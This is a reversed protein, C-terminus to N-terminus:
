RSIAPVWLTSFGGTQSADAYPVFVLSQQGNDATKIETAYALTGVWGKPLKDQADTLKINDQLPYVFKTKDLQLQPNLSQDLAFIQPGRKLTFSNPYTKGGNIIETEIDFSVVIKDKDKWQREIKLFHDPGSKYSKGNVTATYNKAWEPVRLQLPFQASGPIHVQVTATGKRPFESTLTLELPITKQSSTKINEKIQAPEYLLLTPINNLMGFNLYPILAIGRPVSSLCCTINCRYPKEGILPTYYSVCGTQPNEAGLLHNYITKEIENYYKLDGTISFLQTNFQLWTTTVCGEGMHASTDALLYHNDQFREHDSSTGTAFLRNASIDDFTYNIVQLLQSDGTLRYMKVLGVINSLMEYAKANAVKDVRKHKLISNVIAPGGEFDYARIIYRCFELYKKDGTWRYLDLMPDIVSTAAMGVHSGSKLINKKGPTDGFTSCLLDGIQVAAKLAKTDGVAGYYALLGFLDYKHVWVDWSTWRNEALYTGLYGDTDQTELLRHFMRDMQQKLRPDKTVLWTNAAAELYKGIHEGIWRQKGPRNEFGALLGEEDVQLLRKELNLQYRNGLYGSILDIQPIELDYRSPVVYDVKPNAAATILQAKSHQISTFLLLATAALILRLSMIM